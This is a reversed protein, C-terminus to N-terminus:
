HGKWGGTQPKGTNGASYSQIPQNPSGFKPNFSYSNPKAKPIFKRSGHEVRNGYHHKGQIAPKDSSQLIRALKKDALFRGNQEHVENIHSQFRKYFILDTKEELNELIVLENFQLYHRELCRSNCFRVVSKSMVSVM